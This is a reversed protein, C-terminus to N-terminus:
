GPRQANEALEVALSLDLAEERALRDAHLREFDPSVAGPNFLLSFGSRSFGSRSFREPTSCCVGATRM